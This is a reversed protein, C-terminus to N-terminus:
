ARTSAVSATLRALVALVLAVFVIAAVKAPIQGVVYAHAALASAFTAAGFLAAVGGHGWADALQQYLHERHAETLRAGRVSRRAMTLIVDFILPALVILGFPVVGGPVLLVGGGVLFGLYQSGSDGMFISAPPRNWALFGLCAGGVGALLVATPGGVIAAALTAVLLSIAVLGDTGDMFNVVNCTLVIWAIAALSAVVGELNLEAGPLMVTLPPAVLVVVVTATATQAALKRMAPIGHLDDVTGVVGLAVAGLLVLLVRGDELGGAIVTAVTAGVMIGIGGLRPTPVSHSSRENPRDLTGHRRAAIEVLKTSVATLLTAVIAALLAM